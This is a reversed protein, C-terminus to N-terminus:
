AGASRAASQGPAILLRRFRRHFERFIIESMYIRNFYDAEGFEDEALLERMTREIAIAEHDRLILEYRDDDIKRGRELNERREEKIDIIEESLIELKEENYGVESLYGNKYSALAYLSEVLVRKIAKIEEYDLILLYRDGDLRKVMLMM